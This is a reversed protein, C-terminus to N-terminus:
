AFFCLHLPALGIAGAILLDRLACMRLDACGCMLKAVVIKLYKSELHATDKYPLKGFVGEIANIQNDSQVTLAAQQYALKESGSKGPALIIVLIIFIGIYNTEKIFAM